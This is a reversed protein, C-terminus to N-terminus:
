QFEEETQITTVTTRVFWPLEDRFLLGDKRALTMARAAADYDTFVHAFEERGRWRFENGDTGPEVCLWAWPSGGCEGQVGDYEVARVRRKVRYTVTKTKTDETM